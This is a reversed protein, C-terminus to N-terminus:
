RPLGLRHASHHRGKGPPHTKIHRSFIARRRRGRRRGSSHRITLQAARTYPLLARGGARNGALIGSDKSKYHSGSNGQFKHLGEPSRHCRHAGRRQRPHQARAQIDGRRRRLLLRELGRGQGPPRSRRNAGPVESSAPRQGDACRCIVMGRPRLQDPTKSRTERMHRPPAYRM